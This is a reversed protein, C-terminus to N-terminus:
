PGRRLREVEAAAEACDPDLTAARHAAELAGQRDGRASRLRAQAVLAACSAPELSLARDIEAQGLDLLGRATYLMALEARWAAQEPELAIAARYDEIAEDIRGRKALLRGRERRVSAPLVGARAARDWAALARNVDGARAAILGLGASAMDFDPDRRLAEEFSAISEGEQGAQLQALGLDYRLPVSWPARRVADALVSVAAHPRGIIALFLGCDIEAVPVEIRPLWRRAWRPMPDSDASALDAAAAETLISEIVAEAGPDVAAPLAAVVKGTAEAGPAPERVFVAAAVDLHVLRWGSGGALHRLLPAAELAHGHSWVVTRIGRREAEEEFRRPEYQMALYTPYFAPDPLELRGDIFTRRDPYWRWALYGGMTMDNFTERPPDHDTVWGAAEEPYFGPAPGSGFFRQTGDLAFFRNTVVDWMLFVGAALVAARAAVGLASVGRAWTPGRRRAALRAREWASTAAPAASPLSALVFLPINRRALLALVLFVACVAFDATMCADRGVTLSVLVLAVLLAFAAVAATPGFGGFPPQFEAITRGYLNGSAVREFLLRAALSWGSLGYPTLLSAPIATIAAATMWPSRLLPALGARRRRASDFGDGAATLLLAALGIAFLAHVNAWLAILAPATVLLRPRRSREALVLLLVGFLLFSVAEPRLTFREQAAVVGPILLLPGAISARRIWAARLALAFGSVISVIKLLDVGVWGALRWALALTVEFLWHLDTWPRGTSTWTFDDSVPLRGTELIRRGALLHWYFDVEALRTLCYVACLLLALVAAARAAKV